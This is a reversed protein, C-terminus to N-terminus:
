WQAAPWRSRLSVPASSREACAMTQGTGTAGLLATVNEQEILKTAAAVAKAKDTADDEILVELQRRNIGGADNIQAVELEIAQKEAEGLAAYTGTPSLVAGIRYPDAATKDTDDSNSSSSCATVSLTLAVAMALLMLRRLSILTM